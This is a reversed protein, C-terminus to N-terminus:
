RARFRFEFIEGAVPVRVTLHRAYIMTLPFFVPGRVQTRAEVEGATLGSLTAAFDFSYFPPPPPMVMPHLMGDPYPPPTSMIQELREPPIPRYLNNEEDLVVIDVPDFPVPGPGDNRVLVYLPFVYRLLVQYPEERWAKTRVTVSVDGRQQTSGHRDSSVTLGPDSVPIWAGCGSLLAAVALCGMTRLRIV